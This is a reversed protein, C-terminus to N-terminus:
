RPAGDELAKIQQELDSVEITKALGEFLRMVDGAEGPTMEGEAVRTMLTRGARAVDEATAIPAMDFSVPRDRRPPALPQLCLRM